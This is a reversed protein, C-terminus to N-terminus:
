NVEHNPEHQRCRDRLPIGVGAGSTGVPWQIDRALVAMRKATPLGDAINRFKIVVLGSKRQPSHVLGDSAGLAVGFRHEGVNALLTRIAVGVDMLPLHSCGALLTMRYSTPTHGDLLDVLM